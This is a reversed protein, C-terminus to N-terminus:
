AAGEFRLLLQSAYDACRLCWLPGSLASRGDDGGLNRNTIRRGCSVCSRKGRYFFACHKVQGDRQRLATGRQLFLPFHYIRASGTTKLTARRLRRENRKHNM